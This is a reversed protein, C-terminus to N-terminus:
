RPKSTQVLLVSPHCSSHVPFSFVRAWNSKTTCHPTDKIKGLLGEIDDIILDMEKLSPGKNREGLASLWEALRARLDNLLNQRKVRSDVGNIEAAGALMEHVDRM